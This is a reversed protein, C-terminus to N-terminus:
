LSYVSLDSIFFLIMVSCISSVSMNHTSFHFTRGWGLRFRCGEKVLHELSFGVKIKDWTDATCYPVRRNRNLIKVSNSFIRPMPAEKISLPLSLSSTQYRWHLLPHSLCRSILLSAWQCFICSSFIGFKPKGLQYEACGVQSFYGASPDELVPAGGPVVSKGMERQDSDLWSGHLHQIWHWICFSSDKSFSAFICIQKGARGPSVRWRKSVIINFPHPALTLGFRGTLLPKQSDKPLTFKFTQMLSVFMLFLEMKALQEGM